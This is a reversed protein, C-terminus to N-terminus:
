ISSAAASRSSRDFFHYPGGHLAFGDCMKPGSHAQRLTPGTLDDSNVARRHAIRGLPRRIRLQALSKPVEGIRATTKAIPPQKDKQTLFALARAFVPNVPKIALFPERHALALSAAASDSRSRGDKHLRPRVGAPGQVEHMVLEGAAPPETDEVDDVIHCTLAQRRDGVGRDCALADGALQRREEPPTALGAHDDGVVPCLEGRVGDEGPRAFVLDRPMVDGWTLGHLVAETFAEVSAHPVLKQVLRQEEAETMRPFLDAGPDGVIIVPSRM